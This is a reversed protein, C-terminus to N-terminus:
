NDLQPIFTVKLIIRYNGLQFPRFHFLAPAVRLRRGGGLSRDIGRNKKILFFPFLFNFYLFHNKFFGCGDHCRKNDSKGGGEVGKKADRKWIWPQPAEM